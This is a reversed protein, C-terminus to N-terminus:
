PREGPRDLLAHPRGARHLVNGPQRVARASSYPHGCEGRHEDGTRDQGYQSAGALVILEGPHMGGTMADFDAFLTEVADDGVNGSIKAELRDMAKDLLERIQVTGSVDRSDLIAFIKQEAQNLLHNAQESEQYANRLIDTCASILARYTAKDRVIEAYYQAHAAHPVADILRALYAAGGVKDFQGDSQLSDVLLQVNVKRNGNHLELLHDFITRNAPDYFDSARLILAVDDCVEPLILMSGLVGVEADLNAPPENELLKGVPQRHADDERQNRRTFSSM